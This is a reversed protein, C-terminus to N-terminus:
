NIKKGKWYPKWFLSTIGVILAYLWYISEFPILWWIYNVRGLFDSALFLLLFDFLLKALVFISLYPLFISQNFLEIYFAVFLLNALLIILGSTFNLYNRNYKAKYAWRIRQSIFSTISTQPKTKVIVNRSFLYHITNSNLKKLDELLFVDEGSSIHLHNQYGNVSLYAEKKFALNAGNCMFAKKLGAFGATIGTIAINEVTQFSPLFGRQTEFDIPLIVLNPNYNEFYNAITSLWNPHRYIVDADSTIILKGKSLSIGEAINKKKGQHTTQAIIKYNLSNKELYQTAIHLTNDDSCDDIFIIEFYDKPFTQKVIQELCTVITQEENRASIIISIFNSHSETKLNIFRNLKSIGIIALTTFTGYAVTITALILLEVQM